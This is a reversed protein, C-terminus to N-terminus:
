KKVLYIACSNYETTTRVTITCTGSTSGTDASVKYTSPLVYFVADGGSGIPGDQMYPSPTKEEIFTGDINHLQVKVNTVLGAPRGESHDIVDVHLAVTSPKPNPVFTPIASPTATPLVTLTPTAQPESTPTIIAGTYETDSSRTGLLYGMFLSSSIIVLQLLAVLLIKPWQKDQLELM